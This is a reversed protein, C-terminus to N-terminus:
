ARSSNSAPSARAWLQSLDQLRPEPGATLPAAAASSLRLLPLQHEQPAEAAAWLGGPGSSARTHGGLHGVPSGGSPRSACGLGRAPGPGSQGSPAGGQAVAAGPLGVGLLVRRPSSRLM